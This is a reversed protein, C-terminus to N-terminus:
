SASKQTRPLWRAQGPCQFQLLSPSFFGQRRAPQPMWYGALSPCSFGPPKTGTPLISTSLDLRATAKEAGQTRSLHKSNQPRNKQAETASLRLPGRPRRTICSDPQPCHRHLVPIPEGLAEKQHGRPSRGERIGGRARDRDGQEQWCGGHSSRRQM